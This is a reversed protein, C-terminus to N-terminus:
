YHFRSSQKEPSPAQGIPKASIEFIQGTAKDAHYVTKAGAGLAVLMRETKTSASPKSKYHNAAEVADYFLDTTAGEEADLRLNSVGSALAMMRKKATNSGDRSHPHFLRCDAFRCNEDFRCTHKGISKLFATAEAVADADHVRGNTCPDPCQLSRARVYCGNKTPYNVRVIQRSSSSSSSSSGRRDRGSESHSTSSKKMKGKFELKHAEEGGAKCTKTKQYKCYGRRLWFPCQKKNAAYASFAVRKTTADDILIKIDAPCESTTAFDRASKSSIGHHARDKPCQGTRACHGRYFNLCHDRGRKNEKRPKQNASKSDEEKSDTDRNRKRKTAVKILPDAKEKLAKHTFCVTSFLTDIKAALSIMDDGYTQVVKIISIANDFTTEAITKKLAENDFAEKIQKTANFVGNPVNSYHMIITTVVTDAIKQLIHLVFQWAIVGPEAEDTFNFDLHQALKGDAELIRELAHGVEIVTELQNTNDNCRVDVVIERLVKALGKVTEENAMGGSCAELLKEWSVAVPADRGPPNRPQAKTAADILPEKLRKIAANSNKHLAAQGATTRTVIPFMRKAVKQAYRIRHSNLQSVSVLKYNHELTKIVTVIAEATEKRKALIQTQLSNKAKERDVSLNTDDSAVVAYVKNKTVGKFVDIAEQYEEAEIFSSNNNLDDFPVELLETPNVILAPENGKKMKMIRQTTSDTALIKLDSQQVKEEEAEDKEEPPHKLPFVDMFAQAAQNVLVDTLGEAETIIALETQLGKIARKKKEEPLHELNENMNDYSTFVLNRELLAKLESAIWHPNTSELKLIQYMLHMM